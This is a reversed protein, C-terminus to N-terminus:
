YFWSLAKILIRKRRNLSEIQRHIPENQWLNDCNYCGTELNAQNGIQSFYVDKKSLNKAKYRFQNYIESNWIKYFNKEYVNGLVLRHGKCCPVVNGTAMIRAFLWGVYCPITEIKNIDHTGTELDIDEIRRLFEPFATIVISKGNYNYRHTIPDYYQKILSLRKLLEKREEQNLLLCDTREPIPDLPVFQIDEAKVEIAFDIMREIEQFNHNFIVNYIKIYPKNKKKEGLYNLVGKIQYFTEKNKNPHTKTYTIADGAWLSVTLSDVELDMLEQAIRKDVLTFNTNIDIEIEKKKEKIYRIIKLIDPHMFPEGGGVLKIQKLGGMKLCDDIVGKIVEFPLSLKKEWDPMEKDKLLPSRCWCGICNNNCFNTLDLHIVQPGLFAQRGQFIGALLKLTEKKSISPIM